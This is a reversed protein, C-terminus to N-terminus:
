ESTVGGVIEITGTTAGTTYVPPAPPVVLTGRLTEMVPNKMEGNADIIDYPTFNNSIVNLQGDQLDRVPQRSVVYERDNIAVLVPNVSNFDKGYYWDDLKVDEGDAWRTGYVERAWVQSWDEVEQRKLSLWELYARRRDERKSLREYFAKNANYDATNQQIAAEQFSEFLDQREQLANMADYQLEPMDEAEPILKERVFRDYLEMQAYYFDWEAAANLAEGQVAANPVGGIGMEGGVGLDVSELPTVGPILAGGLPQQQQQRAQKLRNIEQERLAKAVDANFRHRVVGYEPLEVFLFSYLQSPAAAAGPSSTTGSDSTQVSVDGLPPPTPVASTTALGPLTPATAGFPVPTALAGPVATAPALTGPLAPM